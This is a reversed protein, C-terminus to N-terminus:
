SLHKRLRHKLQKRAEHIRWYMTATSCGEISASKSVGLQQLSVLVIAARLKPSLESLAAAVEDEFEAQVVAQEPGATGVEFREPVDAHFEVPSRDRRTLYSYTTNMAIRFIWTSFQSKGNFGTLGRCGRLFVEQTLDDAVSDDLVMQFVLGRVKPIHRSVLEDLSHRCGSQRFAAVLEDDSRNTERQKIEAM